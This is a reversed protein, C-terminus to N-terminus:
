NQTTEHSYYEETSIQVAEQFVKNFDEENSFIDNVFLAKTWYSFLENDDDDDFTLMYSEKVKIMTIILNTLKSMDIDKMFIFYEFLRLTAEIPLRSEEGNFGFNLMVYAYLSKVWLDPNSLWSQKMKDVLRPFQETLAQTM